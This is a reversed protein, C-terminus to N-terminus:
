DRDMPDLRKSFTGTVRGDDGMLVSYEIWYGWTDRYRYDWATTKTHDFRVRHFPAGLLEVVEAASQGRAICATTNDNLDPRYFGGTAGDGNNIGIQACAALAACAGFIGAWTLGPNQM